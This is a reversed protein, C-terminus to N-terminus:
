FEKELRNGKLRHLRLSPHQPNVEALDFRNHCGYGIRDYNTPENDDQNIFGNAQSQILILFFGPHIVTKV